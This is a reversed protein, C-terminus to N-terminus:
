PHIEQTWHRQRREPGPRALAANESSQVNGTARGLAANDSAANDSRDNSSTGMTLMSGM